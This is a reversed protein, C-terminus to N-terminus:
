IFGDFQTTRRQGLRRFPFGGLEKDFHEMIAAATMRRLTGGRLRVKMGRGPDAEDRPGTVVVLPVWLREAERVRRAVSRESDDIEVRVRGRVLVDALQEARRLDGPMVPILRVHVPALWAPLAPVARDLADLLFVLMWREVTGTASHVIAFDREDDPRWRSGNVEDLQGHLTRLGREDYINHLLRYYHRRRSTLELMLHQGSADVWNRLAALADQDGEQLTVQPVHSGPLHGLLEMHATLLRLYEHMGAMGGACVSHCDFFTFSRTRQISRVEGSRSRRFGEVLEYCRLPLQSARLPADRFLGFFGPDGGYRLMLADDAGGSGSVAYIRERFSGALSDLADGPPGWRYVAATAVPLGGLSETVFRELWDAILRRLLVGHPFWRLHGPETYPEPAGLRLTRLVDFLPPAHFDANGRQRRAALRALAAPLQEDAIGAADSLPQVARGPSLVCFEHRIDAVIRDRM